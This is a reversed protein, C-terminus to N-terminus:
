QSQKHVCVCVSCSCGGLKLLAELERQLEASDKEEEKVPQAMHKLGAELTSCSWAKSELAGLMRSVCVCDGAPTWGFAVPLM